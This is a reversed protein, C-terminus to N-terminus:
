EVLNGGFAVRGKGATEFIVHTNAIPRALAGAVIEAIEAALTRRDAAPPLEFQMVSVFVPQVDGAGGNEAYQASPLNRARVWTGQPSGGFLKESKRGFLQDFLSRMQERLLENESEYRDRQKHLSEKEATLQVIIKKLEVPDDPLTSPTSIM